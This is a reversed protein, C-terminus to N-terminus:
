GCLISSLYMYIRLLPPIIKKSWDGLGFFDVTDYKYKNRYIEAVM